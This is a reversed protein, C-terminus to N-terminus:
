DEEKNYYAMVLWDLFQLILYPDSSDWNSLTYERSSTLANNDWRRPFSLDLPIQVGLLSKINLISPAPWRMSDIFWVISPYHSSRNTLLQGTQLLWWMSALCITYTGGVGVEGWQTLDLKIRHGEYKIAGGELYDRLYNRAQCIANMLAEPGYGDKLAFLLSDSLM